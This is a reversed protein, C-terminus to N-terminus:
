EGIGNITGEIQTAGDQVAAISNAVAMGLDKHCHWSLSAQDINAVNDNIVRDMNGCVEPAVYGVTDPFNIVTAGADIVQEIIEALLNLDSRSADEASWELQSFKEKAYAVTEVATDIVEEPTKKLKYSMHIPSTAIFLHLCPD